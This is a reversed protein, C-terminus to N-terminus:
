KDTRGDRHPVDSRTTQNQGSSGPAEGQRHHGHHTEHKRTQATYKGEEGRPASHKAVQLEERSNLGLYLVRM